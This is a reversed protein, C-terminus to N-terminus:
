KYRNTNEAFVFKGLDYDNLCGKPSEGVLFGASLGMGLNTDECVM